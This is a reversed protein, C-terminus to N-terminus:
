FLDLEEVGKQGDLANFATSLFESVKNKFNITDAEVLAALKGHNEIDSKSLRASPNAPLKCIRDRIDRMDFLNRYLNLKYRIVKLIAKQQDTLNDNLYHFTGKELATHKAVIAQITFSQVDKSELWVANDSPVSVKIKKGFRNKGDTMEFDQTFVTKMSRDSKDLKDYKSKDINKGKKDFYRNESHLAVPSGLAEIMKQINSM